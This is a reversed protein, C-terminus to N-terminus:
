LISSSHRIRYCTKKKTDTETAPYVEHHHAPGASVDFTAKDEGRNSAYYTKEDNDAQKAHKEATLFLMLSVYM